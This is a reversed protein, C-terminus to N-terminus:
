GEPAHYGILDHLTQWDVVVPLADEKRRNAAAASPVCICACGQIEPSDVTRLPVFYFAFNEQSTMNYAKVGVITGQLTYPKEEKSTNTHEDFGEWLSTAIGDLEVYFSSFDFGLGYGLAKTYAEKVAWQMYFERLGHHHNDHHSSRLIAWEYECFLDQFCDLFEGLNTYLNRNYDDFMVIDLGVPVTTTQQQQKKSILHVMGVFPFQHSVSISHQKSKSSSSPSPPIYPKGHTSKPLEVLPRSSPPSNRSLHFARSKLLLSVFAMYQDSRKIFSFVRQQLTQDTFYNNSSCRTAECCGVQTILRDWLSQLKEGATSQDLEVEDSVRVLTLRM